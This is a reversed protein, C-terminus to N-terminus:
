ENPFYEYNDDNLEAARIKRPKKFYFIIFIILSIVLIGLAILLILLTLNIPNKSEEEEKKNGIYTGIIKKDLDYVLSYKKMFLKGLVWTADNNDKNEDFVIGFIYENDKKIFLDNYTFTFELRIDKLVFTLNKFDKIEFNQPCHLITISRKKNFKEICRNKFFTDNFYKKFRFPAQILGFEIQTFGQKNNYEISKNNYRIIDFDLIWDVNKGITGAKTQYFNKESYNNDYMHPYAGIILDGENDNKYRIVYSYSDFNLKKKMQYIFSLDDGSEHEDKLRLGLAGSQNYNVAIALLLSVNKIENGNIYISEYIMYGKSYEQYMYTDPKKTQKILSKSNSDNFTPFTMNAEVSTVFFAYAKSRLNLDVSQPPTGINLIVELDNQLLNEPYSKKVKTTSKFPLVIYSAKIELIINFAFFSFYFLIFFKM